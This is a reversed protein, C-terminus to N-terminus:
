PKEYVQAAAVGQGASVTVTLTMSGTAPLAWKFCGPKKGITAVLGTESDKAATPNFGPIPIAPTLAIDLESVPAAAIAVVTYCAGPKLTVPEQLSQGAAFQGAVLRGVPVAGEPVYTATLPTLMQVAGAAANTDLRVAEAGPTTQHIVGTTGVQTSGSTTSPTSASGGSGPAPEQLRCAQGDFVQGAPCTPPPPPAPPPAPDSACASFVAIVSLAASPVKKVKPRM